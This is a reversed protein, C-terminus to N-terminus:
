KRLMFIRLLLMGVIFGSVICFVSMKFTSKEISVKSPQVLRLKLKNVFEPNPEQLILRKNLDEEVWLYDKKEYNNKMVM